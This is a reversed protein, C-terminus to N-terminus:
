SRAGAHALRWLRLARVLFVGTFLGYVAAVALALVTDAAHAPALATEVGVAYKNCFVALILLLPLASGPLHFRRAAADYRTGAAPHPQWRWLAACVLAAVALWATLPLAPTGTAAFASTIGWGALTTMAVPLVLTRALSVRRAVLQSAGLALLGALLLWVWGPTRQLIAPLAEPRHLLLDLLM